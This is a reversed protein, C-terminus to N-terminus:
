FAIMYDHLGQIMTSNSLEYQNFAQVQEYASAVHLECYHSGSLKFTVCGLLMNPCVM